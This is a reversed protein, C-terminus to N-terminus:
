SLYMRLKGFVESFNLPKGVHGNMGADLCKKIDEKFVNATMAIIPVTKARPNDLDRIKRTAEYGDMEPMQLDMFIMDYKEPSKSFTEFAIAGNEACDIQLCLPELLTLIIERNIEIDEALLICRGPFSGSIAMPTEENEGNEIGLCNYIANTIASPFLPKPLFREIGASKAETEFINWSDSSFIVINNNGSPNKEKILSILKIGDMDPLKLNIFYIDYNKNREILELAEEGGTATDCLTGLRRVTLAFFALDEPDDDIALIRINNLNVERTMPKRDKETGQKANFTFSFSAGKGLESEIWIKGGMMEIINKSIILGLGTGGFKRTTSNEAQQFPQFLLAQQEPSIGIGTDSVTIKITCIGDKEAQFRAEIRVSGGEPTFKVANSILNTIVQALRQDDGTLIEPIDKDIHVKLAQKKTHARFSVVNIVRQLMKEFSFEVPSLEFKNAEIKSMDLIDNIVGLLHNSADEIRFFSYNKRDIDSATKGIKTM